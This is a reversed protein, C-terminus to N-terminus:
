VAKAERKAKLKKKYLLRNESEKKDPFPVEPTSECGAWHTGAATVM